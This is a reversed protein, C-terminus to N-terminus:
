SFDIDISVKGVPTGAVRAIQERSRAIVQALKQPSGAADDADPVSASPVATADPAPGYLLESPSMDFVTALRRLAGERPRAKNTEWKWLTPKTVGAQKALEVMSFKSAARLRRLREGFSEQPLARPKPGEPASHALCASVTEPSLREEFRCGYLNESFWVIQAEREGVDPLVVTIPEDLDLAGSTGLLMGTESINFVDVDCGADSQEITTALYLKRRPSARDAKDTTKDELRGLM